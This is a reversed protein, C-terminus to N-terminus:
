DVEQAVRNYIGSNEGNGRRSIMAFISWKVPNQRKFNVYFDVVTYVFPCGEGGRVM